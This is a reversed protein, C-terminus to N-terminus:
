LSHAVCNRGSAKARYLQRDAAALLDEPRNDAGPQLTAAGMSLTLIKSVPSAAHAIQQKFVLKRCREAVVAAAAADTEPLLMVFEEGGYRAFFDKARTAGEHLVAAVQKLCEDGALHGYFDNFEKFHDIDFMIASLPQTNRRAYEWERELVSDLMRRNAVGTLGDKFSLEQLEKQLRAMEEEMQKRETIDFMFGVLAQVEGAENRVVHVVDRLWVYTGESTLARYDAEHDVGSRSQAVCFDVVWRQDDPHMREAWDEVRQWSDQSWGLLAEIQPGIYEFTMSPWDIKWPIARTSELLTRYFATDRALLASPETM